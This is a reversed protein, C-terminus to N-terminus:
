VTQLEEKSYRILLYIAIGVFVFTLLLLGILTYLIIEYYSNVLSWVFEFCGNNKYSNQNTPARWCERDDISKCCSAPIMYNQNKFSRNEHYDEYNYSGCCHHKQQMRNIFTTLGANPPKENDMVYSNVIFKRIVEQVENKFMATRTGFVITLVLLALFIVLLLSAYIGLLIKNKCCVGCIGCFALIFLFLGCLFVFLGYSAFFRLLESVVEDAAERLNENDIDGVVSPVIRDVLMQQNWQLLAGIILLALAIPVFLINVIVIFTSSIAKCM